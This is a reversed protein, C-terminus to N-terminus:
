HGTTSLGQLFVARSSPAEPAAYHLATALPANRKAPLRQGDRFDLEALLGKFDTDDAGRECDAGGDGGGGDDGQCRNPLESKDPMPSPAEWVISTEIEEEQPLAHGWRVEGELLVVGVRRLAAARALNVAAKKATGIAEIPAGALHRTCCLGYARGTVHLGFRPVEVRVIAFYHSRVFGDALAM